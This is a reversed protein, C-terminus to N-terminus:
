EGPGVNAWIALSSCKQSVIKYDLEMHRFHCVVSVEDSARFDTCMVLMGPAIDQTSLCPETPLSFLMLSSFPVTIIFWFLLKHDLRSPLNLTWLVTFCM